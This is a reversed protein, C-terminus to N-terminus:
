PAEVREYVDDLLAQDEFGFTERLYEATEARSSGSLAMNLAILRAGEMDTDADDVGDSPRAGIPEDDEPGQEEELAAMPEEPPEPLVEGGRPEPIVEDGLPETDLTEDELSGIAYVITAQGEAVPVDAPGIVPETTGAAAVSASVTGAPLDASDENPNTLGSFVPQGGALVDVAPAAATHRVVVRGQGAAAAATDNVFPTITPAGDAGLHAIASVNGSAPVALDVPGIVAQGSDDAADAPFVAVSYSGAALALDDTTTGPAFDDLAREGNVYVDVPTGPIGHLVRVEAGAEQAGAPAALALPLLAAAGAAGLATLARTM